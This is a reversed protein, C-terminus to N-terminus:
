YRRVRIRGHTGNSPLLRNGKADQSEVPWIFIVLLTKQGGYGYVRALENSLMKAWDWRYARFFPLMSETTRLWDPM